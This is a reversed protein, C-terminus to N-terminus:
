LVRNLDALAREINKKPQPYLATVRALGDGM